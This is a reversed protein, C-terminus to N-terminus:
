NGRNYDDQLRVVDWTESTSTELVAVDGQTAAMRHIIGPEIHYTEGPELNLILQENDNSVTLTLTGSLVRLTEMKRRHYQLSLKHGQKIHLIKAVYPHHEAWVEEFGWPKPIIKGQGPRELEPARKFLFYLFIGLAMLCLSLLYGHWSM